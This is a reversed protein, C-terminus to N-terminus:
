KKNFTSNNMLAYYYQLCFDSKRAFTDRLQHAYYRSDTPQTSAIWNGSTYNREFQRVCEEFAKRTAARIHPQHNALFQIYSEGRQAFWVSYEYWKRTNSVCEQIATLDLHKHSYLHISAIMYSLIASMDLRADMNNNGVLTDPLTIDRSADSDLVMVESLINSISVHDILDGLTQQLATFQQRAFRDVLDVKQFKDIDLIKANFDALIDHIRM